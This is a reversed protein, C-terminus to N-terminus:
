SYTLHIRIEVVVRCRRQPGLNDRRHALRGRLDAVGRRHVAEPTEGPARDLIRTFGDRCQGAGVRRVDDEGPATRFGVIKRQAAATPPSEDRRDLM